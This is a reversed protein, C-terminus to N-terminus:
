LSNGTRIKPRIFVQSETVPQDKIRKELMEWAARVAEAPDFEVCTLPVSFHFQKGVNAHTLIALDDPVKIGLELIARLAIDTIQDNHFFIARTRRSGHWWDKFASYAPEYTHFDTIPVALMREARFDPIFSRVRRLETELAKEQNGPECHFMLTFDDHGEAKLLEIGLGVMEEYDLIISHHDYPRYASISVCPIGVKELRDELSGMPITSLVGVTQKAVPKDLLHISQAFEERTRGHGVSMVPRYGGGTMLQKAEEVLRRFYFGAPSSLLEVDGLVSVTETGVAESVFTGSKPVRRVLGDTVLANMAVRFTTRSVGLRNLIVEESPLRDGASWVGSRIQKRLYQEVQKSKTTVTM